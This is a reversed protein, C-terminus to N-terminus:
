RKNREKVTVLVIDFTKDVDFCCQNPCLLHLNIRRSCVAFRVYFRLVTKYKVLLKSQEENAYLACSTISWSLLTPSFLLRGFHKLVSCLM